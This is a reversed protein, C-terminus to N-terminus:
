AIGRERKIQDYAKNIETMRENARPDNNVDPHYIMALKAYASKVLADPADPTICLVAYPGHSIVGGCQERSDRAGRWGRRSERERYGFASDDGGPTEIILKLYYKEVVRAAIPVEMPDLTWSRREPNWRRSITSVKLEDIFEQNYPESKLYAIGPEITIRATGRRMDGKQERRAELSSLVVWLACLCVIVGCLVVALTLAWM